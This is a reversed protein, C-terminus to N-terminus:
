IKNAIIGRLLEELEHAEEPSFIPTKKESEDNEGAEEEEPALEAAKIEAAKIEAKNRKETKTSKEQALEWLLKEKELIGHELRQAVTNELYDTLNTKLMKRRGPMDVISMVSLYLYIGFLSIIYFPLLDVFKSGEVIGSCVGFGAVFVGALMLQGSLHKMFTISMGMVRIRNIYKDVFVPINAVGGNLKYCNIFREKCQNLLKNDTGSLTDAQQIMRQYIVGIAAQYLIGIAMFVITLIMITTEKTM